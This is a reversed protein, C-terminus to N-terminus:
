LRMDSLHNNAALQVPGNFYEINYLNGFAQRINKEDSIAATV